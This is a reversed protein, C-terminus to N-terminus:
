DGSMSAAPWASVPNAYPIPLDEVPVLNAMPVEIASSRMTFVMASEDPEADDRSTNQSTAVM